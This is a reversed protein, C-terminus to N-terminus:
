ASSMSFTLSSCFFSQWNNFVNTDVIVGFLTQPIYKIGVLGVVKKPRGGDVAHGFGVEGVRLHSSNVFLKRSVMEVARRRKDTISRDLDNVVYLTKRGVVVDRGFLSVLYGLSKYAVSKTVIRLRDDCSVNVLIMNMRMDHQIRVRQAPLLKIRVLCRQPPQTLDRVAYTPLITDLFIRLQSAFALRDGVVFPLVLFVTSRPFLM